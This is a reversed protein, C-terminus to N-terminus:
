NKKLSIPVKSTSNSVYAYNTHLQSQFKYLIISRNNDISSVSKPYFGIYSRLTGWTHRLSPNKEKMVCTHWNAWYMIASATLPVFVTWSMWGPGNPSAHESLMVFFFYNAIEKIYHGGVHVVWECSGVLRRIGPKNCLSNRIDCNKCVALSAWLKNKILLTGIKNSAVFGCVDFHEGPPNHPEGCHFWQHYNIMIMQHVLLVFM